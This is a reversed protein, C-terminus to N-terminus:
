VVAAVTHGGRISDLMATAAVSKAPFGCTELM